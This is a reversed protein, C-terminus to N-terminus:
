PEVHVLHDDDPPEDGDVWRRLAERIEGASLTRGALAERLPGLERMQLQKGGLMRNLHGILEDNFLTLIHRASQDQELYVVRSLRAALEGHGGLSQAYEDVRRAFGDDTMIDLYVRLGDAALRLVHEPPTLDPEVDLPLHCEPCVPLTDLSEALGDFTCKRRGQADLVVFARDADPDVDLALRQLQALARLEPSERLTRYRDFTASRYCRNHWSIYRRKYTARFIQDLRLFAASQAILGEGEAIMHLLRQQRTRLDADEAVHLRTDTLYERTAVVQEATGGIFEAIADSERLLVTLPSSGGKHELFRQGATILSKLADAPVLSPDVLSFFAELEDLVKHAEAWQSAQQGLRRQLDRLSARMREISGLREQRAQLLRSYITAQTAHDPRTVAMDMVLKTLRTLARWEGMNLLPSRALQSVRNRLPGSIGDFPLARGGEDLAVLWGTRLLCAVVLEFVEPTMGNPSRTLNAALERWRLPRGRETQPTNDRARVRDIVAGAAVSANTDVVYRGDIQVLLGMPELIDCAFSRLEPDADNPIGGPLVVREILADVTRLGSLPRRPAILAFDPFVHNLPERAVEALLDAWTPSTAAPIAVPTQRGAYVVRGERYAAAIIRAVVQELAAAEEAIHDVVDAQETGAQDRLIQRCAALRRLSDMDAEGIPRPVWAAVGSGFRRDALAATLETFAAMQRDPEYPDAVFVHCDCPAEPSALAEIIGALGAATLARLDSAEVTVSRSTNQWLVELTTAKDIHALPFEPATAALKASRWVRPDDESLGSRVTMLRNRALESLNTHVDITYIDGGPGERRDVYNGRLRMQELLTEALDPAAIPRGSGDLGTLEATAAAPGPTGAVNLLITSKVLEIVADPHEPSIREANKEYYDYVERVYDATRPHAALRPSLMDFLDPLSVLRTHERELLGASPPRRLAHLVDLLADGEAFYKQYISELVPESHPHLPYSRLLREASFTVEGFASAYAQYASSAADALSQEDAAKVGRRHAVDRMRNVGLRYSAEFGDRIGALVYPEIGSLEELGARMSVVLSVPELRSRQCLFELLAIDNRVAKAGTGALFQSLDDILWIIGGLRNEELLESLRAMREIRSQRFDLPYGIDGAFARAAAVAGAPDADAMEQWTAFGGARGRVHKDLDAEYRPLIHRAVLDLAYSQESLPLQVRHLPRNLEAEACDFVIDELNEDEARHEGLAVPVVLPRRRRALTELPEAYRPNAAAFPVRLSPYDLLLAAACLLHTKGSGAPGQMMFAGGAPPDTAIQRLLGYLPDDAPSDIAVYQALLADIDPGSLLSPAGDAHDLADRVRRLAALDLSRPIERIEVIDAIRTM